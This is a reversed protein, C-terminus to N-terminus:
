QIGHVKLALQLRDKVHLKEFVASLHAKVTRETIHCQTAISTNSAGHAALEAVEIERSTLHAQWGQSKDTVKSSLTATNKLLRDMLKKGIWVNGARVVQQVRRLTTSDSFAHCYAVCGADLAAIGEDDTPNSSAAVVWVSQRKLLPAWQADQWPPLNPTSLDVWVVGSCTGLRSIPNLEPAEFSHSTGLAHIWHRRLGEDRTVFFSHQLAM